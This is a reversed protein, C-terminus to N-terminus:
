KAHGQSTQLDKVSVPPGPPLNLLVVSPVTALPGLVLCLCDGAEVSNGVDGPTSELRKSDVNNIKSQSSTLKYPLSQILNLNVNVKSSDKDVLNFLSGPEFKPASFVSNSAMDPKLSSPLLSCINSVLGNKKPTGSVFLPPIVESEKFTSLNNDLINVFANM